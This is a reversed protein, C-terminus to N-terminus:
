LTRIASPVTGTVIRFAALDDGLPPLVGVGSPHERIGPIEVDIVEDRQHFHM